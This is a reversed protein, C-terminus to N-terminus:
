MRNSYRSCRRINKWSCSCFEINCGQYNKRNFRDVSSSLTGELSLVGVFVTLVVGIAWIVSSRFYKALKDIQVKDSIKSIISLATGVLILPLFIVNIINGIFTILYLLVPQIVSASVMSGTTVLLTILIPILSSSFAVLDQISQKTMTILSGFNSMIITVILIYQVYYAIQSISKNELSDSVSKLISHIIVIVIISGMIKLTQGIESGFLSMIKEVISKNNIDGKLANNLLENIDLDGFSDKTYSNAEDVFKKINLKDSQSDLIEENTAMSITSISLIAFMILIIKKIKM